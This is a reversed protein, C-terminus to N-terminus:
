RSIAIDSVWAEAPAPLDTRRGNIWYCAKGDYGGVVYVDTGVVTISSASAFAWENEVPAPLDTRRGNKWYCAKTVDAKYYGSIYIDTGVVTISSASSSSTSAPVPLDTKVGNKWYCANTNDDWGEYDGAVYVNDGVVTIFSTSSNSAGYPHLDTRTSNKWYCATLKHSDRGYLNYNFEGYHGAIYVDTGVVMISTAVSSTGSPVSINTRRGNKWYCAKTDDADDYCGSIYIDTGVVIISNASSWSTSAPVPLDTKVSNKWYCAKGDYGGVVYVDTGVVTISSARSDWAVAPHLDTIVSNKWYCANRYSINAGTGRNGADYSGAMYIDQVGEAFASIYLTVFFVTVLSIIKNKM